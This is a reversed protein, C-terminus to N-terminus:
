GPPTANRLMRQVLRQGKDTLQVYGAPHGPAPQLLDKVQLRKALNLCDGASIRLISTIDTLTSPSVIDAEAARYACLLIQKRRVQQLLRHIPDVLCRDLYKTPIGKLLASIFM